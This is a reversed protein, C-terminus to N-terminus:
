VDESNMQPHEQREVGNYTKSLLTVAEYEHSPSKAAGINRQCGPYYWLMMDCDLLIYLPDM